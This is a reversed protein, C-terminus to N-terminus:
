YYLTGGVFPSVYLESEEFVDGPFTLDVNAGFEIAFYPGIEYAAGVTANLGLTLEREDSCITETGVGTDVVACAGWFNLKLGAGVFPVFASPNLFAYRAGGGLWVNSLTADFDKYGNFMAGLNIETSFGGGFEWGIRGQIGFGPNLAGEDTLWVPVLLHAGYEIGRGQAATAPQEQPAQQQPPPPQQYQQQPPPYQQPPPQQPPPPPPGGEPGEALATSTVFAMVLSAIWFAHRM